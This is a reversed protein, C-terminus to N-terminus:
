SQIIKFKCDNKLTSKSENVQELEMKMTRLTEININLKEQDKLALVKLREYDTNLQESNEQVKKVQIRTIELRGNIFETIICSTQYSRNPM